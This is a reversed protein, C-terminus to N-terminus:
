IGFLLLLRIHIVTKYKYLITGINHKLKLVKKGSAAVNPPAKIIDSM